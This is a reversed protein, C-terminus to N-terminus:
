DRASKFKDNEWIGKLTKGNADTITGEGHHLGDRFGGVYKEGDAYTLTGEGHEMGSKWQGIYTDGNAFTRTGVCNTWTQTKNPNYSGSCPKKATVTPSLNNNPSHVFAIQTKTFRGTLRACQEESLGRRRAESVDSQYGEKQEWIPSSYQLALRCLAKDTRRTVAKRATVNATVAPTSRLIRSANERADLFLKTGAIVKEIKEEVCGVMRSSRGAFNRLADEYLSLEKGKLVELARDGLKSITDATGWLNCSGAWQLNWGLNYAPGQNFGSFTEGHVPTVWAAFLCLVPLSRRM